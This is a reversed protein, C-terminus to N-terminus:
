RMSSPVFLCHFPTSVDCLIKGTATTRAFLRGCVSEYVPNGVRRQETAMANINIMCSVHFASFSTISLMEAVENKTGDIQRIDTTFSSIYDFHAM